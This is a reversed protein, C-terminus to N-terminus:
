QMGLVFRNIFDAQEQSLTMPIGGLNVEDGAKVPQQQTQGESEQNTAGVVASRTLPSQNVIGTLAKSDQRGLLRNPVGQSKKFADAAIPIRESPTLEKNPTHGVRSIMDAASTLFNQRKGTGEIVRDWGTAPPNTKETTGSVRALESLQNLSGWDLKKERFQDNVKSLSQNLQSRLVRAEANLAEIETQVSKVAKEDPKLSEYKRLSKNLEKLRDQAEWPSLNKSAYRDSNQVAQMIQADNASLDIPYLEKLGSAFLEDGSVGPGARDISNIRNIITDKAEQSLSSFKKHNMISRALSDLGTKSFQRGRLSALADIQNNLETQEVSSLRELYDAPFVSGKFTERAIDQGALELGKNEAVTLDKAISKWVRTGAADIAERYEDMDAPKPNEKFVLPNARRVVDEPASMTADDIGPIRKDGAEIGTKLAEMTKKEAAKGQIKPTTGPRALYGAGAGLPAGLASGLAAGGAGEKIVEPISKEGHEVAGSAAGGFGLVAGLRAGQKLGAMVGGKAVKSFEGLPLFSGAIQGTSYAYPHRMQAGGPGEVDVGQQTALAEPTGALITDLAGQAFAPSFEEKRLGAPKMFEVATEALSSDEPINANFQRKKEKAQDSRIGEYGAVLREAEAQASADHEPNSPDFDAPVPVLVLEGNVEYEAKPM